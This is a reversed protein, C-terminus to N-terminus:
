RGMYVEQVRENESVDEPSGEAIVQGNHLVTISDTLRLVLDVDHEILIISIDGALAAVLDEIVRTEDASLGATPEDLLLVDPDTGLALAIELLKQDGYSLETAPEDALDDLGVSVLIEMTMETAEGDSDYRAVPSLPGDRANIAGLVNERVTLSPFISEIQLSQALGKRTREYSPLTTIDEGDLIISGDDPELIGSLLRMFTTKGAGNPGILGQLEGRELAFGVHDVAQISDFSRTLDVTKLVADTVALRDVEATESMM